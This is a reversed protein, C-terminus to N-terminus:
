KSLYSFLWDKLRTKKLNLLEDFRESDEETCINDRKLMKIQDSTVPLRSSLSPSLKKLIDLSKEAFVSPAHIKLRRISLAEMIIDIIEEFTYVDPGCLRYAAHFTREDHLASNFAEAVSFVDVPAFKTEGSGIIPVFIGSKVINVMDDFFAAGDGFILSPMFVTWDLGSNRVLTEGEYKTSFYESEGPSAGLASMHIFRRIGSKHASDILSAAYDVHVKKFSFDPRSKIIGILNIIADFGSSSLFDDLHSKDEITGEFVSFGAAKLAAIKNNNRELLTVSVGSAKIRKSVESGVFGTGGTIFVKM